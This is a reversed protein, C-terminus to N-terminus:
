LCIRSSQRLPSSISLQDTELVCHRFSVVVPHLNHLSDLRPLQVWVVGLPDSFPFAYFWSRLPVARNFCSIRPLGVVAQYTEIRSCDEWSQWSRFCGRCNYRITTSISLSRSCLKFETFERCSGCYFRPNNPRVARELVVNRPQTPEPFGQRLCSRLIGLRPVAYRM